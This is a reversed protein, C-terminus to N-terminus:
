NRRAQEDRLLSRVLESGGNALTWSKLDPDLLFTWRALPTSQKAAKRTQRTVNTLSWGENFGKEIWKYEALKSEAGTTIELITMVPHKNENKLAVIWQRCLLNVTKDGSIHVALRRKPDVTRGVYRREGNRPDSLVYIFVM